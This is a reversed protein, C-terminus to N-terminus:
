KYVHANSEATAAQMGDSPQTRSACDLTTSVGSATADLTERERVGMLSLLFTMCLLFCVCGRGDAFPERCCIVVIISSGTIKLGM